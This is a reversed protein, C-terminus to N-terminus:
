MVSVPATILGIRYLLLWGHLTGPDPEATTQNCDIPRNATTPDKKLFERTSSHLIYLDGEDRGAAPMSLITSSFIDHCPVHKIVTKVDGSPVIPTLASIRSPFMGRQM